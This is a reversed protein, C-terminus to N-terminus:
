IPKSRVEALEIINCETNKMNLFLFAILRDEFGKVPDIIVKAGNKKMEDIKKYINDVEFCLHHIGGGKSAFQNVPSDPGVPEILELYIEGIKLFCVNVKQTGINTPIGIQDFKIHHTIEGLSDEINSVVIGIHHLKM